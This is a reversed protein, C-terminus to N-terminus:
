MECVSSQSLSLSLNFTAFACNNLLILLLSRGAALVLVLVCAGGKGGECIVVPVSFVAGFSLCGPGPCALATTPSADDELGTQFLSTGAQELRALIAEFDDPREKRLDM